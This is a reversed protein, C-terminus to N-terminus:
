GGRAAEQLRNLARPFRSGDPGLGARRRAEDRAMGNRELAFALSAAALRNNPQLRMAREALTVAEQGEGLNAAAQSALSLLVADRSGAGALLYGLVRRALRWDGANAAQVAVIRSALANGPRRALYSQAIRRAEAIRGSAELAGVIRVLLRDTFRIAAAREYHELAANMDRGALAADGALVRADRTDPFRAVLGDSVSRALETQDTGVLGRVYDRVAVFRAPNERYAVAGVEPGFADIGAFGRAVTSPASDLLSAAEDRRGLRELARAVITKLYPDANARAAAGSFITVLASNRDGLSLARAFLRAVIRDEPARNHLRELQQQASRISGTELAVIARFTAVGRQEGGPPVREMLTRATDFDGTRAALVAQQYLARATGGREAATRSASLFPTGRGAEGLTASYDLLLSLNGQAADLARVFFPLSPLLGDRDRILRAQLALARPQAPDNRLAFTLADFALAEENGAYRFEAIDVWLDANRNDIALARDYAQAAAAPNGARRELRGLLQYGRRAEGQAFAGSALWRRACELNGELLCNEGRLVAISPRSAGAAELRDLAVDAAITDGREVADRAVGLQQPVALAAGGACLVLVLGAIWRGLATRDTSSIM